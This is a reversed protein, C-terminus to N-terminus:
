AIATSQGLHAISKTGFGFRHRFRFRLEHASACWPHSLTKARARVRPAAPDGIIAFPQEAMNAHLQNLFDGVRNVLGLKMRVQGIKM